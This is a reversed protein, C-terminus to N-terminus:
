SLELSWNGNPHTPDAAGAYSLSLLDGKQSTALTGVAPGSWLEKPPSFSDSLDMPVRLRSIWAGSTDAVTRLVFDASESSGAGDLSVRLRVTASGVGSAGPSLGILTGRENLKDITM